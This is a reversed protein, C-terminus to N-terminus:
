ILEMAQRVEELSPRTYVKLVDSLGPISHRTIEYIIFTSVGKLTLKTIAFARLDHARVGYKNRYENSHHHERLDEKSAKESQIRCLVSPFRANDIM